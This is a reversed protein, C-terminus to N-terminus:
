ALAVPAAKQQWTSAPMAAESTNGFWFAQGDKVLAQNMKAKSFVEAVSRGHGDTIKVELKIATAVALRQQM